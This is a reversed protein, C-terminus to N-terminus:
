SVGHLSQSSPVILSSRPGGARKIEGGIHNVTQQLLPRKRFNVQSHPKSLPSCQVCFRIASHVASGLQSCQVCFWILNSLLSGPICSWAAACQPCGAAGTQPWASCRPCCCRSGAASATESSRRSCSRPAPSGRTGAPSASRRGAAAPPPPSRWTRWPTPQINGLTSQINGQRTTLQKYHLTLQKYFSRAKNAQM